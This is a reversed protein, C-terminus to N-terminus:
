AVPPDSTGHHRAIVAARQDVGRTADHQGAAAEFGVIVELVGEQGERM